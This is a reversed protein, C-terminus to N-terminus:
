SSGCAIYLIFVASSKIMSWPCTYWCLLFFNSLLVKWIRSILFNGNNESCVEYMNGYQVLNIKKWNKLTETEICITCFITNTAPARVYGQFLKELCHLHKFLYFLFHFSSVFFQVGYLNNWRWAKYSDINNIKQLM